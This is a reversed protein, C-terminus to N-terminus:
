LINDIDIPGACQGKSDSGESKQLWSVAAHAWMNYAHFSEFSWVPLHYLRLSSAMNFTDNLSRSGTVYGNCLLLSKLIIDVLM